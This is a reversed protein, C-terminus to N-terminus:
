RCWMSVDALPQRVARITLDPRAAGIVFVGLCRDGLEPELGLERVCAESDRYHAYWSSWYAGVRLSTALLHMNQVACAVACTEEWPPFQKKGEIPRQRRVCIAVLHSAKGWKDAAAKVYYAKFAQADAFEPKGTSPLVFNEQWFSPPQEVYWNLTADLFKQKAGGAFTVFRWPETKGHNPAWPAAALIAEVHSDLVAGGTYDKPQVSRRAEILSQVLEPTAAAPPVDVWAKYKPTNVLETRERAPIRLDRTSSDMNRHVITIILTVLSGLVAGMLAIAMERRPDTAAAEPECTGWM